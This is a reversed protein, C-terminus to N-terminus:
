RPHTATADVTFHDLDFIWTTVQFQPSGVDQPSDRNLLWGLAPESTNALAISHDSPMLKFHEPVGLSKMKPEQNM